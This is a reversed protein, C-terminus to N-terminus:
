GRFFGRKRRDPVPKSHSLLRSRSQKRPRMRKKPQKMSAILTILVFPLFLPLWMLAIARDTWNISVLKASQSQQKWLHCAGAVWIIATGCLLIIM